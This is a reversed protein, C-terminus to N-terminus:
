KKYCDPANVIDKEWAIVRGKDPDVCQFYVDDDPPYDQQSSEFFLGEFRQTIEFDSAGVRIAVLDAKNNVYLIGDSFALDTNGPIRVFFLNVPKSPNSNNIVHVGEGVENVLLLDGYSYIKGAVDIPRGSEKTIKMSSDDAYVPRYAEIAGEPFEPVFPECSIFVLVPVFLIPFLYNVVRM